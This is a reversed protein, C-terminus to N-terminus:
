RVFLSLLAPQMFHHMRSSGRRRAARGVEIARLVGGRYFAFGPQGNAGLPEVRSRARPGARSCAGTSRTTTPAAARDLDAVAADHDPHRRAHARDDGRRRRRRDRARLPRAGGRRGADARVVGSRPPAVKSRSRSARATSRATPPAVREARARGGGRRRLARGRRAAAADRAAGAVAGAARRRVRARRERAAHLAGGSRRRPAPWGPTPCRSSGCRRTSRRPRRGRTARSQGPRARVGARPAAPARARRPLRQDRDPVAVAQPAGSRALTDRARWARLMTEQVMDDSDHSSGLMRYCHLRLAAACRSSPPPSRRSRDITM